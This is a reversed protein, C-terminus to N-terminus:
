ATEGYHAKRFETSKIIQREKTTFVGGKTTALWLAEKAETPLEFWVRAAQELDGSACGDKICIIADVYKESAEDHAAKREEPTPEHEVDSPPLDEGRYIYLGLGFLACCKAVCRMIATNTDFCTPDVIPKNRHDLVPLHCSKTVGSITVKVMVLFGTGAPILPKDNVLVLEFNAAPDAELVSDWASAWSVYSLQGKKEIAQSLDVKRFQALNNM